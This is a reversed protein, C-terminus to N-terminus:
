GGFEASIVLENGAAICTTRIDAFSELVAAAPEDGEPMTPLGDLMAVVPEVSARLGEPAGDLLTGAADIAMDIRARWEEAPVAGIRWGTEANAVHSLVLSADRCFDSMMVTPEAVTPDPTREVADGTVACGSIGALLLAVATAGSWRHVGSM